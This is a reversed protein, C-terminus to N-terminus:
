AANRRNSVCTAVRTTLKIAVHKILSTHRTVNAGDCLNEISPFEAAEPHWGYRGFRKGQSM